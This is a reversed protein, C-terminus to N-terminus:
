FIHSVFNGYISIGACNGSKRFETSKHLQNPRLFPIQGAFCQEAFGLIQEQSVQKVHLLEPLCPWNYVLYHYYYYYLDVWGQMRKPNSFRTDAEASPLPLIRVEAPHCTVSQSGM